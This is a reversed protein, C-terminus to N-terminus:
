EVEALRVQVRELAEDFIQAKTKTNQNSQAPRTSKPDRKGRAEGAQQRALDRFKDRQTRLLGEIRRLESASLRSIEPAWSQGLLEWERDTCLPRAKQKTISM